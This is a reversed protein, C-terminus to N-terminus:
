GGTGGDGLAGVRRVRWAAPDRPDHEVSALPYTRRLLAQVRRALDETATPAPEAVLAEALAGDLAGRFADDDPPELTIRISERDM